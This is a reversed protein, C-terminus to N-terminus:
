KFNLFDEYGTALSDTYNKREQEYVAHKYASNTKELEFQKNMRKQQLNDTSRRDLKFQRYFEEERRHFVAQETSYMCFRGRRRNTQM